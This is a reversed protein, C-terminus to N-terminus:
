RDTGQYLEDLKNALEEVIPNAKVEVNMNVHKDPAYSGHVKFVQDAASLRSSAVVSKDYLIEAVVAKAGDESFGMETLVERVGKSDIIEGAKNDATVPSYGVSVVLDQKQRPRKSKADKIIEEALKRQLRTAM